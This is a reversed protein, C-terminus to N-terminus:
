GGAEEDLCAPVGIRYSPYRLEVGLLRRIARGDVSRNARRTEDLLAPEVSSPLPLGLRDCVFRTLELSSCPEDDAVPYAGTVSSRLGALALSALDDVHIRSVLNSGDGGLRWTGERISAHAGRGPGYIAAPRLILASPHRLVIAQEAAVRLSERPTRPATPTHEDVETAAGYVGTTSLYVLKLVRGGLAELLRPTHEVLGEDSRVLPISHLVLHGVDPLGEIRAVDPLPLDRSRLRVVEHGLAELRRAVREGTFGAGLILAPPPSM